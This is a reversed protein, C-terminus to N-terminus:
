EGRCIINGACGLAKAITGDRWNAPRWLYTEVDADAFAHLWDTQERTETGRDSKLEAVICRGRGCLILDPFGTGDGQVTTRWGKGTKAPRFHAVRYGAARALEIVARLLASETM